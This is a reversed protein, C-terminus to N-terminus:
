LQYLNTIYEKFREIEEIITDKHDTDIYLAIYQRFDFSLNGSSNNPLLQKYTNYFQKTLISIGTVKFDQYDAIM